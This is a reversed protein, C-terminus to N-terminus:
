HPLADTLSKLVAVSERSILTTPLVLAERTHGPTEIEDILLSVAIQGLEEVPRAVVSIGPVIAAAWQSDDVTVLSLETGIRLGRTGAVKLVALAMDNNSTFIISPADTQDLMARVAAESAEPAGACYFWTQDSLPIGGETAGTRFGATRERVTSIMDQPEEATYGLVGVASILFGLKRHGKALADRVATRTGDHDDTTVSTIDLGEIRRDILVVPRGGRQAPSLHDHEKALSPVVILGDVQKDLLTLVAQREVEVNEDTNSIIVQYGRLRAADVISKTARDFFANTFDAIIVLGITRTSGVRMARALENPRYGLEQAAAKVRDVTAAAVRGYNSLARSATAHSVGARRAVDAITPVPLRQMKGKM